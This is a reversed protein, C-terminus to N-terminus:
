RHLINKNFIDVILKMEDNSASKPTIDKLENNKLKLLIKYTYSEKDVEEFVLSDIDEYNYKEITKANFCILTKETCVIGRKATLFTSNDFFLSVKDNDSIVNKKKLKEIKEEPVIQNYLMENEM